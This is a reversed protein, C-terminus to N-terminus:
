RSSERLKNRVENNRGHAGEREGKEDRGARKREDRLRKKLQRRKLRPASQAVAALGGRGGDRARRVHRTGGGREDRAGGRERALRGEGLSTEGVISGGGTCARVDRGDHTKRRSAARTGTCRAGKM